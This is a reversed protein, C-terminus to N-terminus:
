KLAIFDFVQIGCNQIVFM